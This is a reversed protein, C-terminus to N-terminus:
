KMRFAFVQEKIVMKVVELKLLNVRLSTNRKPKTFGDTSPPKSSNSSNLGLQRKLEKLNETLFEISANQKEILKTQSEILKSQNSIQESQKDCFSIIMEIM